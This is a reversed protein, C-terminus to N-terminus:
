YSSEVALVAAADVLWGGVPRGDVVEYGMDALMDRTSARVLANDDALLLKGSQRREPADQADPSGARAPDQAVPIRRM